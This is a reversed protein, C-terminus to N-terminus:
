QRLYVEITLADSTVNINGSEDKVGSLAITEIRMKTLNQEIMYIFKVISEYSTKGQLTISATTPTVGAPQSPTTASPAASGPAAPADPTAPTPLPPTMAGGPVSPAGIGGAAANQFNIGAISVGAKGALVYIDETIQNQYQYSKSEAAIKSVRDIATRYQELESKTRILRSREQNSQDKESALQSTKAAQEDIIDKGLLFVGVGGSILLLLICTLIIRFTRANWTLNM